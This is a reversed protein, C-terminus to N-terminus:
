LKTTVKPRFIANSYKIAQAFVPQDQGEENNKKTQKNTQKIPIV